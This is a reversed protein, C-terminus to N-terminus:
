PRATRAAPEQKPLIEHEKLSDIVKEVVARRVVVNDTAEAAAKALVMRMFEENLLRNVSHVAWSIRARPTTLYHPAVRKAEQIVRDDITVTAM